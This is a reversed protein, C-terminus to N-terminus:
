LEDASVLLKARGAKKLGVIPREATADKLYEILAELMADRGPVGVSEGAANITTEKFTLTREEGDLLIRVFFTEGYQTTGKNVGIIPFTVKSAILEDKEDEGVFSAKTPDEWTDFFGM